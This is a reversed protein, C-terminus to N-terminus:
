GGILGARMTGREVNTGRAAEAASTEATGSCRWGGVGAVWCAGSRLVRLRALTAIPWASFGTQLGAFVSDAEGDVALSECLRDGYLRVWAADGFATLAG